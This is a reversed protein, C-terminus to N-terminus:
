KTQGARVAKATPMPDACHHKCEWAVHARVCGGCLALLFLDDCAHASASNGKIMKGAWDDQSGPGHQKRRLCRTLVITTATSGQCGSRSKHLHHAAPDCPSRRHRRRYNEFINRFFVRTFYKLPCSDPFIGISKM